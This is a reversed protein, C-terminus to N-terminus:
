RPSSAPCPPEEPTDLRRLRAGLLSTVVALAALLLASVTFALDHRGNHVTGPEAGLVAGYCAGVVAVGLALGVQTVTAALGSAAGADDPRVHRLFQAVLPAAVFGQGVGVVGLTLALLVPEHAVLVAALLAGAVIVAGPPAFRQSLASAAMFGLGMPVLLLGALLPEVLLGTQLHYTVVLFLGANGAFFVGVTLLGTPLGRTALLRPPFLPARSRRQQRVLLAIAVAAVPLGAAGGPWFVLPVLLAPLAVVTLGAGVLDLRTSPAQSEGILRWGLWVVLLGVPVNVLFVARWGLGALDLQSLVGGGVVGCVVGLGVVVGYRGIARAREVPDLFTARVIALVQPAMIGAAAGQVFRAVVLWEASGVLGCLLSAATFVGVGLLFVAKRGFRDGLRAGTVLVAAFALVYGAGVFQIEGFSALLDAQISPSAVSVVFGDVQGMFSAALLVWLGLWERRSATAPVPSALPAVTM